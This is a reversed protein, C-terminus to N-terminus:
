SRVHRAWGSQLVGRAEASAADRDSTAGRQVLVPWLTRGRGGVGVAPLHGMSRGTRNGAGQCSMEDDTWFTGDLFVCDAPAVQEAFAADWRPLTPAYVVTGGTVRDELRFGV